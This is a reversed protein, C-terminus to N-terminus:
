GILSILTQVDKIIIIKSGQFSLIGEAELKKLKRSMTERTVGAYNAMEERNIPIRVHFNGDKKNGYKECFEILIYAIRAEVDKTALNQALNETEALRDSVTSLIKLAIDPNDRMINDMQKKTLTCIKTDSIAFSSFNCIRNKGFINLEGFFDGPTLIHLIQEKGDKTIKSLKVLGENLISLTESLDGELFLIEGKKYSKHSTLSIIGHLEVDSLGSFMPVKRACLNSSCRECKDTSSNNM